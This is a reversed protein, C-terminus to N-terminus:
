AEGRMVAALRVAREGVEGAWASHLMEQSATAWDGSQMAGLALHFGMLRLIGLNFCMNLLVNQRPDDLTRWWALHSDLLRTARSIDNVLLADIETDSLGVDDLNRGVGITLKGATDRYPKSRVSEDVRLQAKLKDMDM